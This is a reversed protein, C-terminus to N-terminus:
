ITGRLVAGPIVFEFNDTDQWGFSLGFADQIPQAAGAWLDCIVKANSEPTAMRKLWSNFNLPVAFHLVIECSFGARIFMDLWESVRHDRVHSPDRLLEVAQLFTDQALDDYSVIDGLIFQGGPKLVRSFENLANQPHSWHHASYRSVVVDFEDDDFPLVEVNGQQTRVNTVGHETALTQVQELMPETLDYAIVEAAYKAFAVATHGAGCGADLVQEHGQLNASKVMVDLDDGSAHVASHRYNEAVQGFQQEVKSKEM